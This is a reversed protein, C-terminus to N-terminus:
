IFAKNIKLGPNLMYGFQFQYIQKSEKENTVMKNEIHWLSLHHYTILLYWPEISKHYNWKESTMIKTDEKNSEITKKM